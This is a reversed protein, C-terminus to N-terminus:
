YPQSRIMRILKAQSTMEPSSEYNNSTSPETDGRDDSCENKDGEEDDNIQENDTSTTSSHGTNNQRQSRSIVPVIPPERKIKTDLNIPMRMSPRHQKTQMAKLHRTVTSNNCGMKKALGRASMTPNERILENLKKEDFKSPRGSRPADDLKYNENEFQQFWRQATRETMAGHGYVSCIDRVAETAQMGQHFKFLLIHRLHETKDGDQKAM